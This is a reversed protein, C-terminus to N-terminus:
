VRVGREKLRAVPVDSLTPVSLSPRLPHGAGAALAPARPGRGRLALRRRAGRRTGSQGLWSSLM